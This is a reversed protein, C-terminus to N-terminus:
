LPEFPHRCQQCCRGAKTACDAMAIGCAVCPAPSGQPGHPLPVDEVQRRIGWVERRGHDTRTLRVANPDDRLPQHDTVRHWADERSSAEVEYTETVQHIVEVVYKM